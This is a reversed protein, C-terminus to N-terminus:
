LTITCMRWTRWDWEVSAGNREREKERSSLAVPASSLVVGSLLVILGVTARRNALVMREIERERERARM